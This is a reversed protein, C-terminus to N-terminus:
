SQKPSKNSDAGEVSLVKKGKETLYYLRKRTGNVSTVVPSKEIRILAEESLARTAYHVCQIDCKDGKGRIKALTQTDVGPCEAIALFAEQTRPSSAGARRMQSVLILAYRRYTM